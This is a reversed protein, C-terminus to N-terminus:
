APRLRVVAALGGSPAQELDLTGGDATVLRKAIALGLGTGARKEGGRWFRDFARARQEATMGPGEDVVRVEVAAADRRAVVTVATGAPSVGIANSLLNDLVQELSEPTARAQLGPAVDAELRVGRAEAQVSWVRMRVGVIEDLRVPVPAPAAADARALALLGDVLRSLRELESLSAELDRRGPGTVDRELNELRLRLAALPTRLQHSADAVFEQQSHLLVDLRSVTENFEEAVARIEPPGADAAARATLDGRGVAAAAEELRSLPRTLTQAFRIGVLTAAALVVGGIAALLLWYRTVRSDLASTPYTIRVAGWIAQSSAIPVAVYILDVGLTHSYRTGTVTHGALASAIEPRSAFPRHATRAYGAPPHTDFISMGQADVVVVRGGTDRRYKLAQAQLLPSPATMGRELPDEADAALVFADRVISNTLDRKESRGYQIGLPIELAALVLVTLTVYTTLLRRSM